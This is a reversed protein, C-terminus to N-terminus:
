FISFDRVGLAERGILQRLHRDSTLEWSGLRTELGGVDVGIELHWGSLAVQTDLSWKLGLMGSVSVDKDGGEWFNDERGLGMEVRTDASKSLAGPLARM